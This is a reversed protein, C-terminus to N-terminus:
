YGILVSCHKFNEFSFTKWIHIEQISLKSQVWTKYPTTGVRLLYHHFLTILPSNSITFGNMNPRLWPEVINMIGIDWGIWIITIM